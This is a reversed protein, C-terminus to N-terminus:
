KKKAAIRKASAIDGSGIGEINKGSKMLIDLVKQATEKQHIINCDSCDWIRRGTGTVVYTGNKEYLCPYLPCYCWTCDQEKFHCPYSDCSTNSGKIEGKSLIKNIHKRAIVNINRM